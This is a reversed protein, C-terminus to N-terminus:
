SAPSLRCAVWITIKRYIKDRLQTLEIQKHNNDELWAKPYGMSDWSQRLHLQDLIDNKVAALTGKSSLINPKAKNM